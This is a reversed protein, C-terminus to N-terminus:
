LILNVIKLARTIGVWNILSWFWSIVIKGSVVRIGICTETTYKVFVIAIFGPISKLECFYNAILSNQFQSKM